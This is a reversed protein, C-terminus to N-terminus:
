ELFSLLVLSFLSSCLFTTSDGTLTTHSSANMLHWSSEAELLDLLLDGTPKIQTKKIRGSYNAKGGKKSRGSNEDGQQKAPM